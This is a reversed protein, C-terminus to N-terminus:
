QFYTCYTRDNEWITVSCLKCRQFKGSLKRWAFYALNEVTPNVNDFDPIGTNLNKHDVIDLFHEKITKQYNVSWDSGEENIPREVKVELVYNHGHGTLNACKGFMEFNQDKNFNENWLQHMASFEFKETYYVIMDNESQISISRYPSLNLVLQRVQKDSFAESIAQRCEVLTHGLVQLTPLQEKCYYLKIDDEILPLATKRVTKDIETVNVVFGTVPDLESALEVWLSLYLCLGEAGHPKSAYSNYGEQQTQSFPNISFRIERGLTYM